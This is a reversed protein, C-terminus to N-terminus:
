LARWDAKRLILFCCALGILAGIGYLGGIWDSVTAAICVFLANRGHRGVEVGLPVNGVLYSPLAGCAIDLLAATITAAPGGDCFRIALTGPVVRLFMLGTYFVGVVSVLLGGNALLKKIAV